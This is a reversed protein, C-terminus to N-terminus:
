INIVRNANNANNSMVSWRLLLKIKEGDLAVVEGQVIRENVAVNINM